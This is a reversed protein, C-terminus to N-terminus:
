PKQIYVNFGKQTNSANWKSNLIEEDSKNFYGNNLQRGAWPGFGTLLERVM